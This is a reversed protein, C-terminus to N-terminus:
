SVATDLDSPLGAPTGARDAAPVPGIGCVQEADAVAFDTLTAAVLLQEIGSLIRRASDMSVYATDFRLQLVASEKTDLVALFLTLDQQDWGGVTEIRTGRRLAALDDALEHPTDRVEPRGPWLQAERADNFYAGVAPEFGRREAVDQRARALEGPDHNGHQYTVLAQRYCRTVLDAFTGDRVDARFLGNQVVPGIMTQLRREVRGGVIITLFVPDRGTHLSVAAVLAALLVASSSVRRRVALLEAAVAVAPSELELAVFRPVHAPQPSPAFLDRPMEDLLERRFRVARASRRRGQEGAEYDAQELPQWRTEIPQLPEGNLARALEDRLLSLGTADVAAHSVNLAVAAPADGALVLAFRVPWQRALDFVEETMAAVLEKTREIVQQPTTSLVPVSLTGAGDVHQRLGSPGDVLRTRLVDVHTVVTSLADRVAEVTLGEPVLIMERMTFYQPKDGLWTIVDWIDRQAWTAPAEARRAEQVSVTIEGRPTM